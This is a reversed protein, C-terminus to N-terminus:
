NHLGPGSMAIPLFVVQGPTATLAFDTFHDIQMVVLNSEYDVVYSEPFTWQDTTTAYYAPKLFHEILGVRRLESEQYQFSIVVDQNFHETVPQGASDLASFAYGYKFLNAHRQHPLTAIPLIHLTVQGEVPMAWAPIFIHTGDALILRQPQSTDFTVSVPGPKPHPGFLVIDQTADSSAVALNARGAWYDVSTELAAGVHWTTGSVVDLTYLGSSDTVPFRARVFGDDDSWAWVLVTGTVGQTASITLTGSITADPLRFQLIHDGSTGDQSVIVRKIAPKISSTV